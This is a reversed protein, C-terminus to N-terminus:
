EIVADAIALVGAPIDMGLDRATKLNIVFEFKTPQLVPLDSARDGKLVRGTYAGFQRFSDFTDPGYSMLGGSTAYTGNQYIAPLKYKAALAILQSRHDIFFQSSSVLLATAGGNVANAFGPEFEDEGGIKLTIIRVGINRGAAEAEQLSFSDSSTTGGPRWNLFHAVTMARPVAHQLLSLRKTTLDASLLTVGTINGGPRNLSAVLGTRVPDPGSLFVIPITASAAKAPAIANTNPAAAIVTVNRRVLDAALAPIRNPENEGWRYEISVNQGEVFGAETLGRRFGPLYTTVDRTGSYLWGIVPLARQQARAALPWAVAGGLGAIFERRRIMQLAGDAALGSGPEFLPFNAYWKGWGLSNTAEFETCGVDTM